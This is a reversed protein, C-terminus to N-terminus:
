LEQLEPPESSFVPIFSESAAEGEQIYANQIGIQEAYRVVHEYEQQTVRRSLLPHNRMQPMPTYQNMISYGIKNGYTRHLYWLIQRAEHAHGPLVLHRVQVGSRMLATGPANEPSGCQRVMEALAAKAIEPYDPANSYEKATQPNWYKFDPLYIDILGELYRLTDASEYGSSNWIVPLNMGQVRLKQLVPILQMTYHSPSVLNINHVGQEALKWIIRLLEGETVSYGTHSLAIEHNQCYICRLNCGAFFVTGSGNEGSIPPEEWIHPAARAIRIQDTEGCFGCQSSRETGCMRPCQMCVSQTMAKGKQIYDLLGSLHRSVKTFGVSGNYWEAASFTLLRM